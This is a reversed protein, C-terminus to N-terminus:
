ASSPMRSTSLDRPSPSTYLHCINGHINDHAPAAILDFMGHYAVPNQLFVCFVSSNQRKIYRCAAIAKRGGAIVLDPWTPALPPMFSWSQEFQIYPSLSKWPQRLKIERMQPVVGLAEAVGLCQNQTGTLGTETIIWTRPSSATM